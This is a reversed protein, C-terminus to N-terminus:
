LLRGGTERETPPRRMGHRRSAARGTSAGPLRRGPPPQRAQLRREPQPAELRPSDLRQGDLEELRRKAVEHENDGEDILAEHLYPLFVREARVGRAAASRGREASCMGIAKPPNGPATSVACRKPASGARYKRRMLATSFGTRGPRSRGAVGRRSRSSSVMSAIVRM